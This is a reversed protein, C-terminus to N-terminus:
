LGCLHLLDGKKDLKSQLHNPMFIYRVCGFVRFHSVIPKVNWLKQYPSISGLRAQPSRNTVYVVTKMSETQFCSSTNKAHPMRKCTKALHWNKREAVSNQQPMSKHTFQHLIRHVLLYEFFEDSTYKRGNDARICKM